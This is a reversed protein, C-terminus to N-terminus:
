KNRTPADPVGGDTVLPEVPDEPSKAAKKDVFKKPMEDSM